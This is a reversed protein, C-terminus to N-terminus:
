EKYIPLYRYYVELIMVAMATTYLRGGIQNNTKEPEDFYWSGREPGVQVQTRVLYDRMEQNWTRWLPGGYHRLLLSGYYNYYLDTESCGCDEAIYRTGRKLFDTDHKAGSFVRACLGMATTSPIPPRGPQYSYKAKEEKSISDLFLDMKVLTQSPIEFGIMHASKLLMVVWTTVSVDGAERPQYRWGGGDQDQAYLIWKLAGLALAGLTPDKTEEMAYAECLALTALIHGYMGRSDPSDRFDYGPMSERAHAQTSLFYIGDQVAKQYEGVERTNGHGLLALLALSTAAVRSTAEGSNPTGYRSLDFNWSGFYKKQPDFQQHRAIWALGMAVADESQGNGGAEELMKGRGAADTRPGIGGGAPLSRPVMVQQNWNTENGSAEATQPEADPTPTEEGEQNPDNPKTTEQNLAELLAQAPDDLPEDPMTEPTEQTETEIEVPTEEPLLTETPEPNEVSAEPSDTELTAGLEEMFDEWEETEDATAFEMSIEPGHWVGRSVVIPWLVMALLLILHFILSGLFSASNEFSKEDLAFLDREPEDWVPASDDEGGEASQSATLDFATIGLSDLFSAGSESPQAEPGPEFDFEEPKM